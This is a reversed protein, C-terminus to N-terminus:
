FLFGGEFAFRQLRISAAQCSIRHRATSANLAPKAQGWEIHHQVSLIYRFFLVDILFLHPKGWFQFWATWVSRMNIANELPVDILTASADWAVNVLPVDILTASADWAVNVLPVDILTASADWAVNVLPVDILTASADWVVNVLPVDILTASADWVLSSSAM